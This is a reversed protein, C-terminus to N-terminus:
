MFRRNSLRTLQDTEALKKLTRIRRNARRREQQARDSAEIARDIRAWLTKACMAEDKRIFDAVGFRLSEIVVRQEESSSVVIKPVDGQHTALDSILEPATFPPINYDLLICSFEESAAAELLQERNSVVSVEVSDRASKLTHVLLTQHDRDDDALLIKIKSM